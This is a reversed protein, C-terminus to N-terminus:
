NIWDLTTQQITRSYFMDSFPPQANRLKDCWGVKSFEHYQRNIDYYVRFETDDVEM